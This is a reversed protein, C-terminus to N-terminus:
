GSQNLELQIACEGVVADDQDFVSLRITYVGPIWDSLDESGLIGDLVPTPIKTELLSLWGYDTSIGHAEIDYAVAESGAATGFLTLNGTLQTGNPPSTITVDTGCDAILAPPTYSATPEPSLEEDLTIGGDEPAGVLTVTPALDPTATGGTDIPTPSSLPTVFLDPTPTPPKLLDPPLDPAVFFNVYSVLIIIALLFVGITIARRQRQLGRERELGFMAQRLERRARILQGTYWFLGIGTVIYIWVDNQILFVYLQNM